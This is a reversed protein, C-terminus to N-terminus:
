LGTDKNVKGLEEQFTPHNEMMGDKLIEPSKGDNRKKPNRPIKRREAIGDKLIEIWKGDNRSEAMGGNWLEVAGDNRSTIILGM